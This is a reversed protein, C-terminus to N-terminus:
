FDGSWIYFLLSISPHPNRGQERTQNQQQQQQKETSFFFIIYM